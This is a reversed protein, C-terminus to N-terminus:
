KYVPWSGEKKALEVDRDEWFDAPETFGCVSCQINASNIWIWKKLGKTQEKCSPCPCHLETGCKPCISM